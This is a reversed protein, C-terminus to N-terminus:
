NTSDSWRLFGEDEGQRNQRRLSRLSVADVGRHSKPSAVRKASHISLGPKRRLIFGLLGRLGRVQRGIVRVWVTDSVVPFGDEIRPMRKIIAESNTLWDRLSRLLFILKPVNAEHRRLRRLPCEVSAGKDDPTRATTPIARPYLFPVTDWPETEKSAPQVDMHNYVTVTPLNADDGFVAHV